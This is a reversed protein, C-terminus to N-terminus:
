KASTIEFIRKTRFFCANFEMPFNVQGLIVPMGEARTWAFALRVPEFRGVKGLLIIPQARYNALNGSLQISAAQDDWIAGLDIGIEYPLVNVTAGTDVLGLVATSKGQYTFTIPLYPLFSAETAYSNLSSYSFQETNSM